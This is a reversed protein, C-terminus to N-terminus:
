EGEEGNAGEDEAPDEAGVTIQSLMIHHSLGCYEMCLLSYTGPQDLTVRLSNVYGPMAQTQGILTMDPDYVGLGHNVDFASVDFVVTDGLGVEAEDMLWLWQRGEIGITVADEPVDGRTAAYPLDLTTIVAILVGAVVLAWFVRARMGFSKEQVGAYEVAPRAANLAVIAFAATVALMLLITVVFVTYQM